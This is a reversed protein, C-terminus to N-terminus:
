AARWAVNAKAFMAKLAGSEALQNVTGQLAQALDMADKKVAMGVAWGDRMRPLPLPEIVYRANGALTSELESAM